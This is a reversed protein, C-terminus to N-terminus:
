GTEAASHEFQQMTQRLRRLCRTRAPDISDIPMGLTSSIEEYSLPPDVLLARLLVQDRKSLEDMRQLLMLDHEAAAAQTEPEDEPRDASELQDLDGFSRQCDLWRLARLSETRATTALWAGVAEPESIENLNQALQLWTTAVVDAADSDPLRHTRVASWVRGSYRQVVLKWAREDGEAAARVLDTTSATIETTFM